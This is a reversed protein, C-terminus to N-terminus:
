NEGERVRYYARYRGGDGVHWTRFHYGMPAPMDIEQGFMNEKEKTKLAATSWTILQSKSLFRTDTEILDDETGFIFNIIDTLIDQVIQPIAIGTAAALAAASAKVIADIYGRYANPDGQDHEMMTAILTLDRAKGNYLAIEPGVRKEGADVDEYSTQGFPNLVTNVHNNSDIVSTILYPEDSASAESTEELCKIGRYFLRISVNAFSNNEAKKTNLVPEDTQHTEVQVSPKLKSFVTKYKNAAFLQIPNDAVEKSLGKMVEPKKRMADVIQQVSQKVAADNGLAAGVAKDYENESKGAAYRAILNLVLGTAEPNKIEKM